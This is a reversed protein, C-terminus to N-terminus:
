RWLADSFAWKTGCVSQGEGSQQEENSAEGVAEAPPGDEGCAKDDEGDGRGGGWKGGVDPGQDRRAERLTHPRSQYRRGCHGYPESVASATLASARLGSPRGRATAPM